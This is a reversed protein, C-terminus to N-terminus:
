TRPAARQNGPEAGAQEGRESAAQKEQDGSGRPGPVEDALANRHPAVSRSDGAHIGGQVPGHWQEHRNQRQHRPPRAALNVPILLAGLSVVIVIVMIALGGAPMETPYATALPMMAHAAIPM